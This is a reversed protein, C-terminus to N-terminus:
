RLLLLYVALQEARDVGAVSFVGATQPSAAPQILLQTAGELDRLVQDAGRAEVTGAPVQQRNFYTTKGDSTAITGLRVGIPDIVFLQPGEKHVRLKIQNGADSAQIDDPGMRRLNLKVAGANDLLTATAGEFRLSAVKQMNGDCLDTATQGAKAALVLAGKGDRLEVTSPTGPVCATRGPCGSVCFLFVTLARLM